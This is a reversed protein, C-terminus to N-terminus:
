ITTVFSGFSTSLATRFQLNDAANVAGDGNYDFIANYTSLATRFKLNDAANVVHDGNIDGFLRYFTDTQGTGAAMATTGDAAAFVGAPNLTITYVGDAISALVGPAKGTLTVAWKTGNSGPVATVTLSTPVTGTQGAAVAVTFAASASPITVAENFTYVVDEVM